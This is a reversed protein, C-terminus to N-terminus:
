AFKKGCSGCSRRLNSVSRNSKCGNCRMMREGYGHKCLQCLVDSGAVMYPVPNKNRPCGNRSCQLRVSMQKKFEFANKLWLKMAGAHFSSSGDSVRGVTDKVLAITKPDKFNSILLKYQVEM